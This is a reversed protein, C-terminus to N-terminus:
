ALPHGRETRLQFDYESTKDRAGVDPRVPRNNLKEYCKENDSSALKEMSFCLDGGSFLIILCALLPM